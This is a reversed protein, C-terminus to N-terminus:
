RRKKGEVKKRLEELADSRMDVLKRPREEKPIEELKAKEEEFLQVWDGGTVEAATLKDWANINGTNVNM